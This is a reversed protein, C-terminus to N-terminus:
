DHGFRHSEMSQLAGPERKMVLEPLKRLSLHMQDTIGDLWRM